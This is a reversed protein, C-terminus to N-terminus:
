GNILRGNQGSLTIDSHNELLKAQHRNDGSQRPISALTPEYFWDCLDIRDPFADLIQGQKRPVSRTSTEKKSLTAM